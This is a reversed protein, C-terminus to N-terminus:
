LVPQYYRVSMCGCFPIDQEQKNANANPLLNAAEMNDMDDDMPAKVAATPRGAM